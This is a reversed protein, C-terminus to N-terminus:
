LEPHDAFSANLLSLLNKQTDCSHSSELEFIQARAELFPLKIIANAGTRWQLVVQFLVLKM